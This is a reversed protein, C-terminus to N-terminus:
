GLRSEQPIFTLGHPSNTDQTRVLPIKLFFKNRRASLIHGLRFIVCRMVLRVLRVLIADLLWLFM